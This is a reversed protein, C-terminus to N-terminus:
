AKTPLTLHTYSVPYDAEQSLRLEDKATLPLEQLEDLTLARDLWGSLKRRYFVSRTRVYRWQETWRAEQLSRLTAPSLTEVEPHLMAATSM